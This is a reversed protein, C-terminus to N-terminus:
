LPPEAVSELDKALPPWLLPKSDKLFSQLRRFVNNILNDGSIGWANLAAKIFSGGNSVDYVIMSQNKQFRVHFGIKDGFGKELMRRLNSTKECRQFNPDDLLQNYNKLLGTM